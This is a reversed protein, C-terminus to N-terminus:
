PRRQRRRALSAVLASIATLAAAVPAIWFLVGVTQQVRMCHPWCDVYGDADRWDTSIAVAALVWLAALIALWIVANRALRRNRYGHWVVFCTLGVLLALTIWRV